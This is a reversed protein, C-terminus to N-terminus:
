NKLWRDFWDLNRQMADNLLRPEGIGHPQRPYVVMKVTVGQRKIANYLEYGQSIPVRADKEGHQILTPTSVGKVNFMASHSRWADFVDWYEGHFYDPLFSPIDSTGTFSMLNTVGAGVSAARFRDTQTVVWSTMYGGYSWGMIGLREPDAIGKEILFDIGSMIDEYDGGGWDGYNAYRFDRGYGSSGRVNCRLVAYGRDAFAAIPYAGRYGIFRQVFVGTPGGHVIVLLPIRVGTQHDVPYTLLGEISTGDTSPWEIIETSGIPLDPIDQLQSLQIPKFKKVRGMFAEPPTDPTESVFGFYEGSGNLTVGSIMLGAPTIDVPAKGNVPLASVRNVTRHTETIYIAKGDASWGLMSPQQDYSQALPMPSGGKAPIIHIRSTFAWTSPNDSANYAIWRGDPSYRPSSESAGTNVLPTIEGTAIQVVSIDAKTWDDILPTPTHTFAIFQGCPSWDFAGAGFGGFVHFEGRTIRKAERKGADDKSLPILWIHNMKMNEDVVRADNKSKENKEEEESKPDSITFAITKGDPSWRFGSVGTKVDTLQWAEGGTPRIIWINNKGSRSSRFAIWQGDPSWRPSTCSKDGHTFQYPESQETDTMYIHTLYESKEETMVAERVTFVGRKGDPSIGVNGINKVKLLVDPTWGTQRATSDEEQPFLIELPSIFVLLSLSIVLLSISRSRHNSRNM